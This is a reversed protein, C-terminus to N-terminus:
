NVLTTSRNAYSRGNLTGSKFVIQLYGLELEFWILISNELSLFFLSLYCEWFFFCLIGQLFPFKLLWLWLSKLSLSSLHTVLNVKLLTTVLSLCPFCKGWSTVIIPFVRHCVVKMASLWRSWINSFISLSCFFACKVFLNPTQGM